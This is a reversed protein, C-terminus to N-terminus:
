QQNGTFLPRTHNRETQVDLWGRAAMVGQIFGTWRGLKDLPMTHANEIARRAFDALYSASTASPEDGRDPLRDLEEKLRRLVTVHAEPTM